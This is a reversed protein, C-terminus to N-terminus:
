ATRAERRRAATMLATFLVVLGSVWPARSASMCGCGSGSRAGSFVRVVGDDPSAILMGAAEGNATKPGSFAIPGSDAGLVQVLVPSPEHAPALFLYLSEGDSVGMDARGDGDMDGTAIVGAGFGSGVTDYTEAFTGSTGGVAVEAVPEELLGCAAGAFLFAAGAVGETTVAGPAGVLVDDFGDADTDGVGAVSIGFWSGYESGLVKWSVADELGGSAGRVVSVSGVPDDVGDGIILDRYGDGDIDGGAAVSAVDEAIASVESSDSLPPATGLYLVAGLSPDSLVDDIGDGNLDGLAVASRASFPSLAAYPDAETDAAVLGAPSGSLMATYGYDSDVLVDDLEDGNIDGVPVIAAGLGLPYGPFVGSGSLEVAAGSIGEASGTYVYLAGVLMGDGDPVLPAGVILDGFGDGNVDGAWAAATGFGDATSSSLALDPTEGYPALALDEAVPTPGDCGRCPGEPPFDDPSIDKGLLVSGGIVVDSLGDGDVDGAWRVGGLLGDLMPLMEGDPMPLLMTPADPLGTGSGEFVYAGGIHAGAFRSVRALLDAHGDGNIDGSGSVVWINADDEAKSWSWVPDVAAVGTHGLFLALDASSGSTVIVDGKGDGDVDGVSSVSISSLDPDGPAVVLPAASLGESAGPYVYLANGPEDGDVFGVDDLGDGNFDEVGIIWGHTTETAVTDTNPGDPAGLYVDIFFRTGDTWDMAVLDDYGDGNVDGAPAVASEYGKGVSLTEGFGLAGGLKLSQSVDGYVPAALLDAFGDGNVDGAAYISTATEFTAWPTESAAGPAGLYVAVGSAEDTWDTVLIDDLADGNVDGAAGWWGVPQSFWVPIGWESPAATTTADACTDPAKCAGAVLALALGAM